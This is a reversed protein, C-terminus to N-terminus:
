ISIKRKSTHISLAEAFVNFGGDAGDVGNTGNTVQGSDGTDGKEGKEGNPVFVTVGDCTINAGLGAVEEITCGHGTNNGGVSVPASSGGGGCSVLALLFLINLYKM